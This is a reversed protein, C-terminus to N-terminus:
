LDMLEFRTTIPGPGPEPEELHSDHWRWRELEKLRYYNCGYEEEVIKKIISIHNIRSLIIQVEPCYGRDEKIIVKDGIKFKM